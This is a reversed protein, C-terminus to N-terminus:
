DVPKVVVRLHLPDLDPHPRAATRPSHSLDRATLRDPELKPVPLDTELRQRQMNVAGILDFPYGHSQCPLTASIVPALRPIPLPMASTKASSPASTAILSM